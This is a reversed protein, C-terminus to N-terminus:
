ITNWPQPPLDTPSIGEACVRHGSNRGWFGCLFDPITTHHQSGPEPSASVAPTKFNRVLCGSITQVMDGPPSPPGPLSSVMASHSLIFTLFRNSWLKSGLVLLYSASPNTREWFEWPSGLLLNPENGSNGPLVLRRGKEECRTTDQSGKQRRAQADRQGQHWM